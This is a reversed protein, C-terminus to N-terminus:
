MRNIKGTSISSKRQVPQGQRTSGGTNEHPNQSMSHSPVGYSTMTVNQPVSGSTSSDVSLVFNNTQFLKRL